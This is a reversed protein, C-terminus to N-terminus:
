KRPRQRWQAGVDMLCPDGPGLGPGPGSCAGRVTFLLSSPSITDSSVGSGSLCGSALLHTHPPPTPLPLSQLPPFPPLTVPPFSLCGHTSSGAGCPVSVEWGFMCLGRARIDPGAGQAETSPQSLTGFPGAVLSSARSAEPNCLSNRVQYFDQCCVGVRSELPSPLPSKRLGANFTVKNKMGSFQKFPRPELKPHSPQTVRPLNSM